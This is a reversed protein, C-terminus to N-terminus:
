YVPEFATVAGELPSDTLDSPTDDTANIRRVFLSLVRSFLQQREVLTSREPLLFEGVFTCDYAKIPAPQIGTATSASTQELTPQTLKVTVKYVRSVKSPPRVSLTLAPYGIAIGGVRDVWRTVGPLIFGEPSMTTDVGVTASGTYTPVNLNLTSSLKVVAIAPM